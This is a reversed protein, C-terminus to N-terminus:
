LDAPGKAHRQRDRYDASADRVAARPGCEDCYRRRNAAPRRRPTYFRGCSSCRALGRRRGIVLLLQTALAAFLSGRNGLMIMTNKESWCLSPRVGASGIWGNVVCSLYFRGRQPSELPGTEDGLVVRWDNVEGSGGNYLDAAITLMARAIEAYERWVDLPEWYFGGVTELLNCGWWWGHQPTARPTHPHSAPRYHECIYLPGWKRFYAEIARDDAAPLRVFDELLKPGVHVQHPPHEVGGRKWRLVGDGVHVIGPVSWPATADACELAGEPDFLRNGLDSPTM